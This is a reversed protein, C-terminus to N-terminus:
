LMCVYAQRNLDIFIINAWIHGNSYDIWHIYNSVTTKSAQMNHMMICIDVFLKHICYRSEQQSNVICKM